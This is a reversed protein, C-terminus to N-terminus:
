LSRFGSRKAGLCNAYAWFGDVRHLKIDDEQTDMQDNGSSMSKMDHESTTDSHAATEDDKDSSSLLEAIEKLEEEDKSFADAILRALKNSGDKKQKKGKNGTYVDSVCDTVNLVKNIM